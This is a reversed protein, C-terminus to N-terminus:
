RKADELMTLCRKFAQIVTDLEDSLEEYVKGDAGCLFELFSETLGELGYTVRPMEEEAIYLDIGDDGLLLSIEVPVNIMNQM